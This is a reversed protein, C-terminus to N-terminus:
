KTGHEILDSRAQKRCVLNGDGQPRDHAPLAIHLNQLVFDRCDVRGLPHNVQSLM